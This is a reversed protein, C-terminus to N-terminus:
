NLQPNKFFVVGTVQIWLARMWGIEAFERYKWRARWTNGVLALKGRVGKVTEHLDLNAGIDEIMLKDVIGFDACRKDGGDFVTRASLFVSLIERVRIRWDTSM